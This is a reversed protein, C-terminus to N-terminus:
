LSADFRVHINAGNSRDYHGADILQQATKGHISLEDQLFKNLYKSTTRSRNYDEGFTLTMTNYDYTAIVSDYSQFTKCNNGDLIYQNAVAKGSRTSLVPYAKM